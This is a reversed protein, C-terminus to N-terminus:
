KHNAELFMITDEYNKIMHTYAQKVISNDCASLENKARKLMIKMVMIAILRM